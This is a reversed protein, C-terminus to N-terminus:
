IKFILPVCFNELEHKLNEVLVSYLQVSIKRWSRLRIHSFIQNQELNGTAM